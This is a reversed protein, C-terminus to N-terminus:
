ISKRIERCNAEIEREFPLIYIDRLIPFFLTHPSAMRDLCAEFTELMAKAINM